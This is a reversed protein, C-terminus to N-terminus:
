HILWRRGQIRFCRFSQHLRRAPQTPLLMQSDDHHRMAEGFCPARAIPGHHQLTPANDGAPAGNVHEPTRGVRPNASKEISLFLAIGCKTWFAAVALREMTSTDHNSRAHAKPRMSMAIPMA